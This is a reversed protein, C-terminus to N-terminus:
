RIKRAWWAGVELCEGNLLGDGELLDSNLGALWRDWEDQKKGSEKMLLPELGQILGLVTTLAARRLARQEPTLSKREVSAQGAASARRAESKERGTRKKQSLSDRGIGEQEWRVEGLPIAIRRSGVSGFIEPESSFTLGMLACPAATAEIKDLAKEAWINYDQLYPNQAKTFPTGAAIAYTATSKAQEVDDKSTGLSTPPSPLLCRFLLDSEWVEIVGGPKLYRMLEMLPNVVVGLGAACFVTDKVFIYDFEEDEFPLPPKRLDHQVFRWNVGQQRLDPALPAIDLGTFSVNSYGRRNFFDHAGSSWLASGCAVELVKKPPRHQFLPVCFPAGYVETLLLTRLNQRHIEVLDVPLLYAITPDRLYRRGLRYTFPMSRYDDESHRRSGIAHPSAKTPAVEYHVVLLKAADSAESNQNEFTTTHSRILRSPTRRSATRSSSHTRARHLAAPELRHPDVLGDM